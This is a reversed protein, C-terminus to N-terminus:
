IIEFLILHFSKKAEIELVCYVYVMEDNFHQVRQFKLRDSVVITENM